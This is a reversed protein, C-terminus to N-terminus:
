DDGERAIRHLLKERYAGEQVLLNIEHGQVALRTQMYYLRRRIKQQEAETEVQDLLNEVRRIENRLEQEPPLCGANRLIRYAARLEDPVARDDELILPKGHGSLDDFEGRRIADMIHKEALMDILLM